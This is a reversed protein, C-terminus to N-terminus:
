DEMSFCDNESDNNDSETVKDLECFRIVQQLNIDDFEEQTNITPPVYVDKLFEQPQKMFYLDMISAKHKMYSKYNFLTKNVNEYLLSNTISPNNTLAEHLTLVLCDEDEYQWDPTDLIDNVNRLQNQLIIELHVSDVSIGGDLVTEILDQLLGHRNYKKTTASNNILHTIKDLAISLENNHLKILFLQIDKLSEMPISITDIDVDTKNIIELFEETFYMNDSDSTGINYEHGSEIDIISIVNVFENYLSYEDVENELLIYERNINIIYKSLDIDDCNISLINYNLTFFKNFANEDIWKLKRVNSELLHKASLMRQTLESSLSESAIQGINIDSNTHALKGYCKYCVGNGRSASACTMPSRLYITKGVLDKYNQKTILYEFGNPKFRFWRNLLRSSIRENKIELIQFNKSDCIYDKDHHLFTNSSNLGLLWAFYGSTGTNGEVIIQAIRGTSSEIVYSLADNTGGTIFSKDVCTPYIGGQGNPKTGINCVVEKFQKINICEGSLFYYYLTNNPDQLITDVIKKTAEMGKNKIDELNYDKLQIHLLDYFDKNNDMLDSLCKLDMSNAFYWSFDDIVIMLYLADDIINCMKLNSIIGRNVDIFNDDIYEKINGRTIAKNFFLHKGKIKQDSHVIMYWFILNIFYDPLSLECCVGNNEDFCINIFTQQVTETEIGDRFVNLLSYYHTLINEKTIDNTHITLPQGLILNAYIGYNNFNVLGSDTNFKVLSEM